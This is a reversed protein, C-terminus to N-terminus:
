GYVAVLWLRCAILFIALYVIYSTVQLKYSTALLQMEPSTASHGVIEDPVFNFMVVFTTIAGYPHLGPIPPIFRRLSCRQM